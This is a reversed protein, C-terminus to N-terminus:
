SGSASTASTPVAACPSGGSHAVWFAGESSYWPQGLRWANHREIETGRSPADSFRLTCDCRAQKELDYGIWEPYPHAYRQSWYHTLHPIEPVHGAQLLREGVDIAMATFREPDLSYPGSVYVHLAKPRPKSVLTKALTRLTQALAIPTLSSADIQVDFLAGLVTEEDYRALRREIDEPTDGRLRMRKRLVDPSALLYVSILDSFYPTLQAYARHDTICFWMGGTTLAAEVDIRHIGYAVGNGLYTTREVLESAADANAYEEPTLWRYGDQPENPRRPRTTVTLLRRCFGDGVLLDVGTSKGVGSPGGVLVLRTQAMM